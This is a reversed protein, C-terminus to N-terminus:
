EGVLASVLELLEDRTFPKRLHAVVNTAGNLFPQPELSSILVVPVPKLYHRHNIDWLLTWGDKEPMLLDLLVLSPLVPCTQMHQLAQQGDEAPIAKHGASELIACLTQRIEPDDDVVLVEHM